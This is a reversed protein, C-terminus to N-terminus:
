VHARGIQIALQAFAGFGAGGEVVLEVLRLSQTLWIAASLAGTVVATALILNRLLYRNIQSMM